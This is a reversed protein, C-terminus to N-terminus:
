SRASSSEVNQINKLQTHIKQFNPRDEPEDNWCLNILKWINPDCKDPKTLRKGKLKQRSVEEDDNIYEYPMKGFSCAEWMFVAFSYVDSKESYGSQGKSRLIEQAVFRVPIDIKIDSSSSDNRTSGFDTLKVLNKKPDYPHSKFVLVNRCALDAHIIGNKSLFIMADAIQLFIEVLVNQQPIFYRNVLLGGLDGDVAYEQLLLISNSDTRYDNPDVIGYTKIIHPHDLTIYLYVENSIKSGKMEILVIPSEKRDIWEAKYLSKGFGGTIKKGKRVEVNLTFASQEQLEIVSTRINIEQNRYYPEIDDM